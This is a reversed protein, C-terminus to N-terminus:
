IERRALEIVLNPFRLEVDRKRASESKYPASRAYLLCLAVTTIIVLAAVGILSSLAAVGLVVLIVTLSAAWAIVKRPLNIVKVGGVGIRNEINTAVYDDPYHMHYATADYTGPPIRSNARITENPEFGAYASEVGGFGIRGSLAVFKYQMPNDMDCFARLEAPATDDVFLHLLYGGSAGTPIRFAQGSSALRSMASDDAKRHPLQDLSLLAVEAVGTGGELVIKPM